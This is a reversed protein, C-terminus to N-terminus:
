ENDIRIAWREWAVRVGWVGLDALRACGSSDLICFLETITDRIARKNDVRPEDEGNGDGGDQRAAKDCGSGSGQEGGLNVM